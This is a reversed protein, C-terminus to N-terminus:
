PRTWEECEGPSIRITSTKEICFDTVDGDSEEVSFPIGHVQELKIRKPNGSVGGYELYSGQDEDVLRYGSSDSEFSIEIKAEGLADAAYVAKEMRQAAVDLTQKRLLDKAGVFEGYAFGMITLSFFVSVLVLVAMDSSGKRKSWM